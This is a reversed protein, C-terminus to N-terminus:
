LKRWLAWRGWGLIKLELNCSVHVDVNVIIFRLMWVTPLPLFFSSDISIAQWSAINCNGGVFSEDKEQGMDSGYGCVSNVRGRSSLQQGMLIMGNSGVLRLNSLAISKMRKSWDVAVLVRIPNMKTQLRNEFFESSIFNLM